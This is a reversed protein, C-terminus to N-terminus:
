SGTSCTLGDEPATVDLLYSHVADNVCGSQPYVTHGEGEYTLVVGTGLLDALRPTSEYPTAPDGTTGIVLIPPAGEAEGYPYPDPEGPWLVCELAMVALPAGFLPHAERQQEQRTRVEAVTLESDSDACNIAANADFMNPYSGNGDRGSYLDALTFVGRPDGQGLDHIATALQPWLEEVYLSSVVAYFVWGATADRDGPGPVPDQRAQEIADTVVARADDGLPCQGPTAACWAAFNDFAREFGAAQGGETAGEAAGEVGRSPDVAGDLVLARVNDPYLHAYVAGLLTGYSYGLYSLQEDGVAERIADLDHATQRTSYYSLGDGHADDCKDVRQQAADVAADFDADSVPDPDAGFSEDLDADTFCSVPSSRAVGRPDFGVLDFDDMVADPLGGLLPQLSLYVAADVGSAGPGGPNVVLSGIRDPDDGKRVRVLALDFTDGSDPEAWDQPVPLTTCEYTRGATLLSAAVGTILDMVIGPLVGAPMAQSLAERPLEPCPEWVVDTDWAAPAHTPEPEAPEETVGNCGAATVATALLVAIAIRPTRKM